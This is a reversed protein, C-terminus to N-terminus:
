EIGLTLLANRYELDVVASDLEAIMAQADQVPTKLAIGDHRFVGDAYADGISAAIDGVPVAGPFDNVNGPDLWILNVVIGNRILAYRM